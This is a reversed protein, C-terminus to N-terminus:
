EFRLLERYEEPKAVAISELAWSNHHGLSNGYKEPTMIIYWNEKDDYLGSNEHLFLVCYKSRIMRVYEANSIKGTLPYFYDYYRMDFIVNKAHVYQKQCNIADNFHSYVVEDAYHNANQMITINSKPFLSCTEEKKDVSSFVDILEDETINLAHQVIAYEYSLSSYGSKSWNLLTQDTKPTWTIYHIDKAFDPYFDCSIIM